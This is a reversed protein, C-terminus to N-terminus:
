AGCFQPTLAIESEGLTPNLYCSRRLSGSFIQIGVISNHPTILPPPSSLSVCSFFVVAFLVFYAVSTMLPRAMKLSHMITQAGSDDPDWKRRTKM